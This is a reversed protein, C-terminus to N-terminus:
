IGGGIFIGSGGGLGGCIGLKEIGGGWGIIGDNVCVGVCIGIGNFIEDM